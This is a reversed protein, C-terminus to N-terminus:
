EPPKSPDTLLGGFRKGDQTVLARLLANPQGNRAPAYDVTYTEGVKLIRLLGMRRLAAVAPAEIRWNLVKGKADPFDFYLQPHPNVMEIKTLKAKISLTKEVDFQSQVAHHASAPALTAVSATMAVAICAACRSIRNKMPISKM